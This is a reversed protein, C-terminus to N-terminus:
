AGQPERFEHLIDGGNSERIRFGDPRPMTDLKRYLEEAQKIVAALGDAVLSIVEQAPAETKGDVLRVFEIDYVM